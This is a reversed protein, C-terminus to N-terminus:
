DVPASYASAPATAILADEFAFDPKPFKNNRQYWRYTEKLGTAFDIPKFKLMRQAKNVVLTIAPMDLYVGFYFKPGMPHGGARMIRDRPIRVFKADKGAAQAFAVRLDNLHACFASINFTSDGCFQTRDCLTDPAM